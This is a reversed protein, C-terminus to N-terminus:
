VVKIKPPCENTTNRPPKVNEGFTDFDNGPPYYNAVVILKKSDSHSPLRSILFCLRFSVKKRLLRLDSVSCDRERGCLRPSTSTTKAPITLQANQSRWSATGSSWQRSQTLTSRRAPVRWSSTRATRGKAQSWREVDAFINRTIKPTSAYAMTSSWGLPVTDPATITTLM